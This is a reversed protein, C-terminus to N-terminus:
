AWCSRLRAGEPGESPTPLDGEGRDWGIKVQMKIKLRKLIGKLHWSLGLMVGVYGRLRGDRVGLIAMKSLVDKM